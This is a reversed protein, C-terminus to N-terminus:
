YCAPGSCAGPDPRTRSTGRRWPRPGRRAGTARTSPPHRRHPSRGGEGRRGDAGTRRVPGRGSRRGADRRGGGPRCWVRERGAATRTPRRAAPPGPGGAREWAAAVPPGRRVPSARRVQPTSPEPLPWGPLPLGPLPLGPLPLGPLPLGPLPLGPLPLGPLPLASSRPCRPAATPRRAAPAGGRAARGAAAAPQPERATGARASAATRVACPDAPAPAVDRGVDRGTRGGRRRRPPRRTPRRAAAGGPAWARGAYGSPRCCGTRLRSRRGAAGTRVGDRDRHGRCARGPHHRPAPHVRDPRGGGRRGGDAPRVARHAPGRHGAGTAPCCAGADSDRCSASWIPLACTQVGTV